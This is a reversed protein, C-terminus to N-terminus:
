KIMEKPQQKILSACLSKMSKVNDAYTLADVKAQRLYYSSKLKEIIEKNKFCFYVKKHMHGDVTTREVPCSVTALFASLYLDCTMYGDDTPILDGHVTNMNSM